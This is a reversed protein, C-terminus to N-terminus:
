WEFCPLLNIREDFRNLRVKSAALLASKTFHTTYHTPVLFIETDLFFVLEKDDQQSTFIFDINEPNTQTDIDRYIRLTSEEGYPKYYFGLKRLERRSNKAHSYVEYVDFCLQASM